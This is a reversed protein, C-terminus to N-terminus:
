HCQVDKENVQQGSYTKQPLMDILIREGNKLQTIQKKNNLQLPEKYTISILWKASIYNAFIKEQETPQKKMKNTTKKTKCFSRLKVYDWEDVKAKIAQAKATMELFNNGLGIDHLNKEINRELQKINWTKCKFIYDVKLQNKHITNPYSDLKM